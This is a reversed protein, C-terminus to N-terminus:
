MSSQVLFHTCQESMKFKRSISNMNVHRSNKILEIKKKKQMLLLISSKMVHFYISGILCLSLVTIHM